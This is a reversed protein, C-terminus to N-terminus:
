KKGEKMQEFIWKQNLRIHSIATRNNTYVIDVMDGSVFVNPYSVEVSKIGERKGQAVDLITVKEWRGEDLYSLVLTGRSEHESKERTNHLLFIKQGLKFLAISNSENLVNSTIPKDWKMGGDECNQMYMEKERYNRLVALCRKSDLAVISPQLQGNHATIKQSYLMKGNQDFRVILPYKDALEHYIPLYFGGDELGVPSSRVLHSINMLPGLRLVGQYAFSKAEDKSIYHYIKSTAWGGFSVGVVFLHLDGNASQYIVPNGLKKIFQHSDKILRKRDLYSKPEEWINSSINYISGYIEVDPRGEGSGAFWLAILKGSSLRAISASHVSPAQKIIPLNNKIFVPVESPRVDLDQVFFPPNYSKHSIFIFFTLACAIVYFILRSM